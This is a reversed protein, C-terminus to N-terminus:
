RYDPKKNANTDLLSLNYGSFWSVTYDTTDPDFPTEGLLYQISYGIGSFKNVIRVYKTIDEDSVLKLVTNVPLDLSYDLIGNSNISGVATTLIFESLTKSLRSSHWFDTFKRQKSWHKDEDLSDLNQEKSFSTFIFMAPNIGRTFDRFDNFNFYGENDRSTQTNIFDKEFSMQNKNYVFYKDFTESQAVFYTNYTPVTDSLFFFTKETKLNLSSLRENGNMRYLPEVFWTIENDTYFFPSSQQNHEFLKSDQNSYLEKTSGILLKPYYSYFSVWSQLKPYYSLTFGNFNFYSDDVLTDYGIRLFYYATGELPIDTVESVIKGLMNKYTIYFEQNIYAAFDNPNFIGVYNPFQDSVFSYDKKHFIVRDYVPDYEVTYGLSTVTNRVDYEPLNTQEWLTSTGPYTNIPVNGTSIWFSGQYQIWSDELYTETSDYEPLLAINLSNLQGPLIYDSYKYFFREMGEDSIAEFKAGDFLLAVFNLTDVFFYGYPTMCSAYRGKIGGYFDTNVNQPKVAFIDGAGIYAQGDSTDMQQRNTTIMLNDTMHIGLKNNTNFIKEIQGYQLGVDNEDGPLFLLYNDQLLEPNNVQSKIIRNPFLTNDIDGENTGVNPQQIDNLSSYDINYGYYNSYNAPITITSSKPLYKEWSNTGEYRLRVNSTTQCPYYHTTRLQESNVSLSPESPHTFLPAFDVTSREGYLNTFTDGGMITENLNQVTQSSDLDYAIGTFCLIQNDFSNYIDEKFACINTLYPSTYGNGYITPLNINDALWIIAHDQGENNDPNGSTPDTIARFLRRPYNLIYRDESYKLWYISDKEASTNYLFTSSTLKRTKNYYQNDANGYVESMDVGIFTTNFNFSYGLQWWSTETAETLGENLALLYRGKIRCVNKFHTPSISTNNLMLDFPRLSIYASTDAWEGGTRIAKHYNGTAAGNSLEDVGYVYRSGPYASLDDRRINSPTFGLGPWNDTFRNNMFIDQVWFNGSANFTFNDVAGTNKHYSHEPIALAQGIVTRNELTRKAYFLKIKKIKGLFETPITISKLEIGLIEIETTSGTNNPDIMQPNDAISTNYASPFKHHRVNQGRFDNVITGASNKVLWSDENSYLENLNEWYSMNADATKGSNTDLGHFIRADSNIELTEKLPTCDAINTSYYPLQTILNSINDNELLGQLISERPERGPIHYTKTEYEVGESEIIYSAYLAYVEDYTFSKDYFCVTSERYDEGDALSGEKTRYSVVINNVYPQFDFEEVARLNGKFLVDDVQAITLASVYNSSNIILSDVTVEEANILSTIEYDFDTTPIGQSGIKYATLVGNIKSITYFTITDYNDSIEAVKINVSIKRSTLVGGISGDNDPSVPQIPIPNSVVLSHTTVNNNNSLVALVYYVGTLLSGGVDTNNLYINVSSNLRFGLMNTISISDAIMLDTTRDVQLNTINLFKDTNYGDVWYVIIDGNVALKAEAQILHDLSFGFLAGEAINDRLIPKYIGDKLIGIESTYNENNVVSFIITQNNFIKRYGCIDLGNASAVELFGYENHIANSETSFNTNMNYNSINDKVTLRNGDLNMKIPLSM